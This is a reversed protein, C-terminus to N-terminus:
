ELEEMIKEFRFTGKPFLEQLMKVTEEENNYYIKGCQAFIEKRAAGKQKWYEKGHGVGLNVKGDSLADIIDSLGEHGIIVQNGRMNAKFRVDPYHEKIYEVPNKLLGSQEADKLFGDLMNKKGSLKHKDDIWHMLEHAMSGVSKNEKIGVYKFFPIYENSKGSAIYYKADKYVGSLANKVVKDSRKLGGEFSQRIGAPLQSYKKLEIRDSMRVALKDIINFDADKLVGKKIGPVVRGLGDMYVRGMQEQIGMKKSFGQYQHLTNIYKAQAVTLADKDGNGTKLLNIEARQKRMITEMQRQKQTAEYANYGKGMWVRSEAEKKRMEQLQEDTYNRVSIGPIFAYYNHRCNAGCLGDVRGLGCVSELDSRRFVMGGWWHSPRAGSHYTVEFTDTGFQKANEDNIKSSLQNVGTMVARRVAVPVKNSWGTEYDVSRIGSGALEKVVRKLVTDYGFSGTVIDICARDLYKQYYESFPTFVKKGGYNVMFGMSNTLNKIENKTQEVVSKTWSQLLENEDYPIFNSNIQEYLAKNRTYEKNVVEDYIEWIEANALGMTRKIENEVFETTEGMWIMKQIQYDATSTIGGTKRIRRVVDEMIRNQLDHFVGEIRLPMKELEEPRM